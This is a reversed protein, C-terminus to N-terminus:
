PWGGITEAPNSSRTLCWPTQASETLELAWTLVMQHAKTENGAAATGDSGVVYRVAELDVSLEIVPPHRSLDLRTPEWSKMVADRVILRSGNGPRLLAEIAETSALEHLPAESGNVAGVWMEILHALEAAILAPVFRGDIVSLDLLAFSPPADARVLQSLDVESGQKQAEAMEALSEERLRETDASPDPILPATLVPGALPDGSVSLLFWSGGSRGLTWREDLHPHHAGPYEVRPQACRIRLQVRAIVRDEEEDHRNVVGLLDISPRKVTELGKGLWSQWSRAWVRILAADPRHELAASTGGRWLAVGLAVIETVSSEIADPSFTPADEAAEVAAYHARNARRHERLVAREHRAAGRLVSFWFAALGGFLVIGVAIEGVVDLAPVRSNDWECAVDRSEEHPAGVHAM